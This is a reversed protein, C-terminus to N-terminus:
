PVEICIRGSNNSNTSDLTESYVRGTACVENTEYPTLISTTTRQRGTALSGVPFILTNALMEVNELEDALVAHEIPVILRIGQATDPGHRKMTKMAHSRGM